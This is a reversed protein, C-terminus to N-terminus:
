EALFNRSAPTDYKIGNPAEYNFSVNSFSTKEEHCYEFIQLDNGFSPLLNINHVTEHKADKKLPLKIM